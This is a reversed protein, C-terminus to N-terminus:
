VDYVRNFISKAVEKGNTGCLIFKVTPYDIMMELTKKLIYRGNFALSKWKYKPIGSGAPYMLIDDMNFELLVFALPYEMLRVLEKQFRVQTINQAWESVSGKREIVLTKEFGLLSYDGTALTTIETGLCSGAKGWEWGKGVKERTDRIVTYYKKESAM